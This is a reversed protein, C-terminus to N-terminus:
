DAPDPENPATITRRIDDGLACNRIVLQPREHEPHEAFLTSTSVAMGIVNGRDDVVPAGSSGTAFGATIQLRRSPREEDPVVRSVIGSTLTYFRGQPHSVVWCTEGARPAANAFAIAPLDGGDVKLLATDHEGNVIAIREVPLTTGDRLMVAAVHEDEANEIIHAATVIWGDPHVVFGGTVGGHWNDCRDCKHASHLMVTADAVREFLEPADIAEQRPEPLEPREALASEEAEQLEGWTRLRGASELELMRGNLAARRSRDSSGTLDDNVMSAACLDDGGGTSAAGGIAMEHVRLSQSGCGASSFLVAPLLCLPFLSLRPRAMAAVM